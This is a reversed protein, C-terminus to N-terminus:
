FVLLTSFCFGELEVWLAEQVAPQHCDPSTSPVSPRPELLVQAGPHLRVNGAGSSDCGAPFSLSFPHPPPWVVGLTSLVHRPRASFTLAEAPLLAGVCCVQGWVPREAVPGRSAGRVVPLAKTDKGRRGGSAAGADSAETQGRRSGAEGMMWRGSGEECM